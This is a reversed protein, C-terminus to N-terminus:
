WASSGVAHSASLQWTWQHIRLPVWCDHAYDLAVRSTTSLFFCPCWLTAKGFNCLQGTLFAAQIQSKWPTSKCFLVSQYHYKIYPKYAYSELMVSIRLFESLFSIRFAAKGPDGLRTNTRTIPTPIAKWKWSLQSHEKSLGPRYNTSLCLQSWLQSWFCCCHCDTGVVEGNWKETKVM